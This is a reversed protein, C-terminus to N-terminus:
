SGKHLIFPALPLKFFFIHQQCKDSKYAKSAQAQNLGMFWFHLPPSSFFYSYNYSHCFKMFNCTWGSVYINTYFYHYIIHTHSENYVTPYLSDVCVQYFQM